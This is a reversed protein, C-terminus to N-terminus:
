ICVNGNILEYLCVFVRDVDGTPVVGVADVSERLDFAQLVVTSTPVEALVLPLGEGAGSVGYYGYMAFIGAYVTRSRLPLALQSSPTRNAPPHLCEATPRGAAAVAGYTAEDFHLSAKM